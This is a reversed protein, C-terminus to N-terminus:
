TRRTKTKSCKECTSVLRPGESALRLMDFYDVARLYPDDRRWASWRHSCLIRRLVSRLKKM